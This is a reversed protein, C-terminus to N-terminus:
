SGWTTKLLSAVCRSKHRLSSLECGHVWSFALHYSSSVTDITCSNVTPPLFYDYAQSTLSACSSPYFSWFKTILKSLSLLPFTKQRLLLLMPIGSLYGFSSQLCTSGCLPQHRHVQCLVGSATLYSHRFSLLCGQILAISQPPALLFPDNFSYATYYSRGSATLFDKHENLKIKIVTM